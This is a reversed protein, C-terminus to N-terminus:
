IVRYEKKLLAWETKDLLWLRAALRALHPNMNVDEKLALALDEPLPESTLLALIAQKGTPGEIHLTPTTFYETVINVNPFAKSPMLVTIKEPDISFLALHVAKHPMKESWRRPIMLSVKVQEALTFTELTKDKEKFFALGRHPDSRILKLCRWRLAKNVLGDWIKGDLGAKFQDFPLLLINLDVSFIDCLASVHKDPVHNPRQTPTGYIWHSINRPNIGLAKALNEHSHITPHRRYHFALKQSLQVIEAM